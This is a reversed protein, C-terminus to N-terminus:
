YVPHKMIDTVIENAFLERSVLLVYTYEVAHNNTNFSHITSKM